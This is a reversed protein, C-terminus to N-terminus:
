ACCTFICSVRCLGSIVRTMMCFLLAHIHTHMARQSLWFWAPWCPRTHMVRQTHTIWLWLPRVVIGALHASRLHQCLGSHIRVLPPFRRSTRQAQDTSGSRSHTRMHTPLCLFSPPSFCFFCVLSSFSLSLSISLSLSLLPLRHSSFCLFVLLSYSKRMSISSTIIGSIQAEDALNNAQMIGYIQTSWKGSIQHSDLAGRAGRGQRHSVRATRAARGRDSQGAGQSYRRRANAQPRSRNCWLQAPPNPPNPPNLVLTSPHTLFPPPPFLPYLLGSFILSHLTGSVFLPYLTDSFSLASLLSCLASLLSLSPAFSLIHSLSISSFFHSSSICIDSSRADINAYLTRDM